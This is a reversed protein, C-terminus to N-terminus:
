KFALDILMDLQELSIKYVIQPKPKPLNRNLENNLENIFIPYINNLAVELYKNKNNKISNIISFINNFIVYPDVFIIGRYKGVDGKLDLDYEARMKDNSLVQYSESVEKFKDSTDYTNKDPHWKMAMIKYAKKIEAQDADPTIGLIDYYTKGGNM